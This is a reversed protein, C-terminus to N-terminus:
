PLRKIPIMTRIDHNLSSQLQNSFSQFQFQFQFRKTLAM